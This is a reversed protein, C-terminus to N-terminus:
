RMWFAELSRSLEDMRGSALSDAIKRLKGAMVSKYRPDETMLDADIEYHNVVHYLQTFSDQQNPSARIGDAIATEVESFSVKGDIYKRLTAGLARSVEIADVSM